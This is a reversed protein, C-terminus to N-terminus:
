SFLHYYPSYWIVHQIATIANLETAEIQASHRRRIDLAGGVRPVLSGGFPYYFPIRLSHFENVADFSERADKGSYDLRIVAAKM